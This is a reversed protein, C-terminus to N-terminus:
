VESAGRTSKLGINPATGREDTAPDSIDIKDPNTPPVVRATVGHPQNGEAGARCWASRFM